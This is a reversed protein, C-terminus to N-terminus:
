RAVQTSGLGGSTGEAPLSAVRHERDRHFPSTMAPAERGRESQVERAGTGRKANKRPRTGSMGCSEYRGPGEDRPVLRPQHGQRSWWWDRRRRDHCSHRSAAAPSAGGEKRKPDHIVPQSDLHRQWNGIALSRSCRRGHDVRHNPRSPEAGGCRQCRTCRTGCPCASCVPNRAHDRSLRIPFSAQNQRWLLKHRNGDSGRGLRAVRRRPTLGPCHHERVTRRLKDDLPRLRGPM